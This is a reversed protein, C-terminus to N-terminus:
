RGEFGRLAGPDGLVVVLDGSQVQETLSPGPITQGDARRVVLPAAEGVVEGLPRGIFPSGDEILVEELRLPEQDARGRVELYDVVRPRLALLAMHRGSTVYPSIVRDAGARYLRDPSAPDAARAVIYLGANLSRATLTIFVNDADSDVASVVARASEIGAQKLVVESTPDGVLYAVGDSVMQPELEKKTDIVVYREGEAELERAVARGVRGYACVIVHDRMDQIRRQMRRRRSVSGFRGESIAVAVEALIAFYMTVGLLAIISTFIKEADSLTPGLFGVTTMVLATQALADVVGFGFAGYGTVGVVFVVAIGALPLRIRGLLREDVRGAMRPM